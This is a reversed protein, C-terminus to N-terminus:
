PAAGIPTFGFREWVPASAPAVLHDLLAVARPDRV